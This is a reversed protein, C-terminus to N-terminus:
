SEEELTRAHLLPVEPVWDNKLALASLSQDQVEASLTREALDVWGTPYRGPLDLIRPAVYSPMGATFTADSRTGVGLRALAAFHIDRPGAEMRVALSHAVPWCSPEVSAIALLEDNTLSVLSDAGQTGTHHALLLRTRPSVGATAGVKRDVRRTAGSVALRSSSNALERYEEESAEQVTEDVLPVLQSVLEESAVALVALSLANRSLSDNYTDFMERWWTVSRQRRVDVVLRGYDTRPGFPESDRGVTGSASLEHRAAGALAIETALWSPGHIASLARATAQWPETTGTQARQGKRSAKRVDLYRPDTVELRKWASNRISADVRDLSLHGHQSLRAVGEAPLYWQPRLARLLDSPPGSATPRVENLAGRLVAQLMSDSLGSATAVDIDMRALESISDTTSSAVRALLTPSLRVGGYSAGVRLWATEGPTGMANELQPTWWGEFDERGYGLRHRLMGARVPSLPATAETEIADLTQEVFDDGGVSRVLTPFDANPRESMLSITLDDALLRAVDRQVMQNAVFVGDSLLTWAASRVQLPRNAERLAEEVGYRLAALENPSSFGAYFRLTNLWYPRDMLRRLVEQKGLPQEWSRAAWEALFRAAFYERVPQVAFEFMRDVNSTLAWFRDTAAKFLEEALGADRGVQRFYIMLTTVIDKALMRGATPTEEVGSQMHWGLFATVEQVDPVSERSIQRRDVERDMLTAMYDSYLPTRTVPVADGKKSILYLLITLQMPNDALQAVHELSTRDRFVRRLKNRHRDDLGKADCWRNVYEAQLVSSLPELRLVEFMEGNPEALGSANPRATVVVQFRRTAFKTKGMRRTFQDIEEVLIARLNPDAVEDLGDFVVLVPFRELLNHISDVNVTRGGSKVECLAALFSEVGRRAKARARATRPADGSDDFPDRGSIWTAYDTLDLRFPLMPERVPLTDFGGFDDIEEPLIAARHVQCLYQGLTSKGQGPVGLLFTLPFEVRLLRGVTGESSTVASVSTGWNQEDLKRV